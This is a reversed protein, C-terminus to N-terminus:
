DMDWTIYNLELSSVGLGEGGASIEESYLEVDSDNLMRRTPM